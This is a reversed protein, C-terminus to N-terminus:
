VTIVRLDTIEPLDIDVRSWTEGADESTFLGGKRTGIYIHDPVTTDFTISEVYDRGVEELGTDMPAWSTGGDTSRVLMARAGGERNRWQNPQGFALATYLLDPDNPHMALPVSYEQELNMAMPRWSEGGDLSEYLSRGPARGSRQDHGGTSVYIHKPDDPRLLVTHIDADVNEDALEWTKGGDASKIMYGVQLSAYINNANEPDIAISRVHPEVAPVPYDVNPVSPVDWVSTFESWSAGRDHSVWVGIPETGAYITSPDHPSITICKIKGPGRKGRNPKRWTQGADESVIVGDGRTGAYVRNPQDPDVALQSVEWDNLKHATVQWANAERKAAFVGEATGAYLLTGM